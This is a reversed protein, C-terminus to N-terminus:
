VILKGVVVFNKIVRYLWFWSYLWLSLRFRHWFTFLPRFCQFNFFHILLYVFFFRYVKEDSFGALWGKLRSSSFALRCAFIVCSLSSDSQRFDSFLFSLALNSSDIFVAQMWDSFISSSILCNFLFNFLACSRWSLSEVVYFCSVRALCSANLARSSSFRFDYWSRVGVSTFQLFHPTLEVFLSLPVLGSLHSKHNYLM